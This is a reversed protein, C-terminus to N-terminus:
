HIPYDKYDEPDFRFWEERDAKKREQEIKQLISPGLLTDRLFTGEYPMQKDTYVWQCVAKFDDILRVTMKPGGTKHQVVDGVSLSMEDLSQDQVREHQLDLADHTFAGEHLGKRGDFWQCLAKSDLIIGVTMVPGGSRLKVMNGTKIRSDKTKQAPDKAASLDLTDNTFTHEKLQSTFWQCVVMTNDLLDSITM